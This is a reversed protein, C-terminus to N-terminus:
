EYQSPLMWKSTACLPLLHSRNFLWPLPPLKRRRAIAMKKIAADSENTPGGAVVAAARRLAVGAVLGGVGV